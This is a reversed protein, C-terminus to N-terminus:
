VGSVLERLPRVSRLPRGSPGDSPVASPGASPGDYGKTWGQPVDGFVVVEVIEALAVGEV